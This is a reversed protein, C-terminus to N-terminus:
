AWDSLTGPNLGSSVQSYVDNSEYFFDSADATMTSCGGAPERTNRRRARM